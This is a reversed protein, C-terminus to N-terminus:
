LSIVQNQIFPITSVIWEFTERRKFCDMLTLSLKRVGRQERTYNLIQLLEQINDSTHFANDIFIMFVTNNRYRITQLLMIIDGETLTSRNKDLGIWQLTKNRHLMHAISRLGNSTVSCGVIHLMILCTNDELAEAVEGILKDDTYKSNSLILWQLHQHIRVLKPIGSIPGQSCDVDFVCIGNSICTIHKLLNNAGSEDFSRCQIMWKKGSHAICYSLASLFQPTTDSEPVAFWCPEGYFLYSECMDKCLEPNQAEMVAAILTTQFLRNICHSLDYSYQKGISFKDILDSVSPFKVFTNAIINRLFWSFTRYSTMKIKLYYNSPLFEKFSIDKFKTLGAYFIWIMEFETNNFLNQLQKQQYPKPKRSLYWAALLEQLTRHIFEYTKSISKFHKHNTVQLLGMGDFSDLSEDESAFCYQRVIKESFILTIDKLLHDYAMKGLRLLMDEVDKPLDELTTISASGHSKRSQHEKLQILVLHKYMDTFTKPLGYRNRNFTYLAICLNIPVFVFCKLLPLRELESYFKQVLALSNEFYSTVNDKVQKETFGLIEIRRQIHKYELSRIASPRSTIVIVADPLLDGSILQTFLSNHQKCALLEDWGELIILIDKGHKGHIQKGIGEGSPGMYLQILEDFTEAKAIKEDRLQLLIVYHFTHLLEGRAWKTCMRMALFTKGSGPYGQILIVRCKEVVIDSYSELLDRTYSTRQELLLSYYDFFTSKKKHEEESIKKILVINIDDSISLHFDVESIQTFSNNTYRKQLFHRLLYNPCKDNLLFIRNVLDDQNLDNLCLLFTDFYHMEKDKLIKMIEKIEEKRKSLAIEEYKAFFNRKRLCTILDNYKLAKMIREENKLICYVTKMSKAVECFGKESAFIELLKGFQYVNSVRDWLADVM